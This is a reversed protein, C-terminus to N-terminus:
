FAGSTRLGACQTKLESKKVLGPGSPQATAVVLLVAPRLRQPEFGNLLTGLSHLSAKICYEGIEIKVDETTGIAM